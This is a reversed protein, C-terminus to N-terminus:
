LMVGPIMNVIALVFGAGCAICSGTLLADLMRITGSLFDAMILDRIGLTFAMGPVLPMLAGIISKDMNSGFGTTFLLITALAVFAAGLFKTFMKNLGLRASALLLLQLGFGVALAIVGDQWVGGFMLAFCASGLSCAAIQQWNPAYPMTRIRELEQYAEDLGVEGQAIKRSLANVAEVRGLHVESQPVSRIQAPQGFDSGMSAFLGNTLVYGHFSDVGLSKAMIEMTQQTRSVEAGNKLLVEGAAMVFELVRQQHNM